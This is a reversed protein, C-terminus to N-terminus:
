TYLTTFLAITVTAVKTGVVLTGSERRRSVDTVNDIPSIACRDNSTWALFDRHARGLPVRNALSEM